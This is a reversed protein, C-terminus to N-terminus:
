TKFFPYFEYRVNCTTSVFQAGKGDFLDSLDDVRGKICTSCNGPTLDLPCQVLGYVNLLLSGELEKIGKAFLNKSVSAEDSLGYLFKQIEVLSSIPSSVNYESRLFYGTSLPYGFENFNSYELSCYEYWINAAINYPCIQRIANTAESVCTRCDISSIDGRLLINLNKDYTSNATFNQYITCTHFLPGAGATLQIFLAISLLVFLSISLKQYDM